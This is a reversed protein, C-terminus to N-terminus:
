GYFNSFALLYVFTLFTWFWSHTVDPISRVLTAGNSTVNIVKRALKKFDENSTIRGVKCDSKRYSGLCTVIHQSMRTRFSEKAKKAQETDSAIVATAAMKDIKQLVISKGSAWINRHCCSALLSLSYYDPLRCLLNLWMFIVKKSLTEQKPSSMEMDGEKKGVMDEVSADWTPPDWQTQRFCILIPLHSFIKFVFVFRTIVHYYYVCGDADSATKWNPPLRPPRPDKPLTKSSPANSSTESPTENSAPAPEIATEHLTAASSATPTLQAAVSPEPQKPIVGSQEQVAPQQAVPPQVAVPPQMTPIAPPLQLPPQPQTLVSQQVTVQQLSKFALLDTM